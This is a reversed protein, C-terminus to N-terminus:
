NVQVRVRHYGTAGAPFASTEVPTQSRGKGDTARVQLVVSGTQSPMWQYVWRSWSYSSLPEELSAPEWSHGDDASVDVRSIGEVGAFAVGGMWVPKEGQLHTNPAPTTIRSLTKVPAEKAWGRREWYGFYERASLVMRSLHKINKFGYLGPVILRVPFGHRADLPQRNMQYALLTGPQLALQLPIATSYGDTAYLELTTAEQRPVVEALLDKLSVGQWLATSILDNTLPNNPEYDVCALTVYEEAAPWTRLEQLSVELPREVLGEIHLPGWDRAQHPLLNKSVYYFRENSTVRPPLGAILDFASPPVPIIPPPELTVNPSLNQMISERMLLPWLLLAGTTSAFAVLLSRRTYQRDEPKGLDSAGQYPRVFRYFLELLAIYLAATGASEMIMAAWSWSSSAGAFSLLLFLGTSIIAVKLWSQSLWLLQVKSATAPLVIVLRVSAWSFAVIQALILLYFALPKASAGLLAITYAQFPGPVVAFLLDSLAAPLFPEAWLRYAGYGVWTVAVGALAGTLLAAGVSSSLWVKVKERM